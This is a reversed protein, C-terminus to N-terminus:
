VVLELELEVRALQFDSIVIARDEKMGQAIRADIKVGGPKWM